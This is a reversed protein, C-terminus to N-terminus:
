VARLLLIDQPRRSRRGRWTIHKDSLFMLLGLLWPNQLLFLLLLLLKFKQKSYSVKFTVATSGAEVGGGEGMAGVKGKGSGGGGGGGKGGRSPFAQKVKRLDKFAGYEEFISMKNDLFSKIFQDITNIYDYFTAGSLRYFKLSDRM